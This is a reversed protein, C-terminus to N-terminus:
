RTDHRVHSVACAGCTAFVLTLAASMAICGGISGMIDNERGLGYFDLVTVVQTLTHTFTLILNLTFAPSLPYGSPSRQSPVSHSELFQARM